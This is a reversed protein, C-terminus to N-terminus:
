GAQFMDHSIESACNRLSPGHTTPPRTEAGSWVWGSRDSDLKFSSRVAQRADGDGDEDGDRPARTRYMSYRHTEPLCVPCRPLSVLLVSLKTM